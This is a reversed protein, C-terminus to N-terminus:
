LSLSISAPAWHPSGLLIRCIWSKQGQCKSDPASMERTINSRHLVRQYCVRDVEEAFASNNHDSDTCEEISYM